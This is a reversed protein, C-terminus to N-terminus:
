VSTVGRRGRGTFEAVSRAKDAPVLLTNRSAEMLHEHSDAFAALLTLDGAEVAAPWTRWGMRM